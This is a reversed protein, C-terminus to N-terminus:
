GPAGREAKFRPRALAAMDSDMASAGVRAELEARLLKHQKKSAKLQRSLWQRDNRLARLKRCM